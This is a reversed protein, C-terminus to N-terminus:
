ESVFSFFPPLNKPSELLQSQYKIVKGVLMIDGKKEITLNYIGQNTVLSYLNEQLHIISYAIGNELNIQGKGETFILTGKVETIKGGQVTKTRITFKGKITSSDKKSKLFPALFMYVTEEISSVWETNTM